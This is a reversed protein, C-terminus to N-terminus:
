VGNQVHVDKRLEIQLNKLTWLAAEDRERSGRTGSQVNQLKSDEKLEQMISPEHRNAKTLQSALGVCMVQSLCPQPATGSPAM